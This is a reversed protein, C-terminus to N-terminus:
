SCPKPVVSVAAFQPFFCIMNLFFANGHSDIANSLHSFHLFTDPKVDVSVVKLAIELRSVTPGAVSHPVHDIEFYKPHVIEPSLSLYRLGFQHVILAV